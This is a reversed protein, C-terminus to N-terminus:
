HLTRNRTRNCIHSQCCANHGDAIRAIRPPHGRWEIAVRQRFWDANSDRAITVAIRNMWTNDLQEVPRRHIEAIGAIVENFDLRWGYHFRRAPPERYQESLELSHKTGADVLVAAVLHAADKAPIVFEPSNEIQIIITRPKRVSGTHHTGPVYE